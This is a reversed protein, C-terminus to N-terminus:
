RSAAEIQPVAVARLSQEDMPGVLKDAITGDGKVIFTEPVGCVGGGMGLRHVACARRSRHCIRTCRERQKAGDGALSTNSGRAENIM